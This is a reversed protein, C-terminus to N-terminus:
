RQERTEERTSTVWADIDTQSYVVTKLTPKYYSPGKRAKRMQQLRDLTLGPVRECVQEPSLWVTETRPKMAVVAGM